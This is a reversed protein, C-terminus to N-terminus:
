YEWIAKWKKDEIKFSVKEKWAKLYGESRKALALILETNSQCWELKRRPEPRLVQRGFSAGFIKTKPQM